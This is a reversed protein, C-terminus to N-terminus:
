PAVAGPTFRYGVRQVTQIFAPRKPDSELKQRLSAIHVDVTRTFIKGNYGWVDTLCSNARSADRRRPRHPVEAAPIRPDLPEVPKGDRTVETRAAISGSTRSSTSAATAPSASDARAAAPGRHARGARRMNFPKTVYDDAGTKLGLIKDDTQGRATLM